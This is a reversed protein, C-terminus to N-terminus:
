PGSAARTGGGGGCTLTGTTRGAAAGCSIMADQSTHLGVARTSDDM